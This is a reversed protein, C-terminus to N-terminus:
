GKKLEKEKMNTRDRKERELSRMEWSDRSEEDGLQSVNGEEKKM